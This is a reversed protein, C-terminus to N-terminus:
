RNIQVAQNNGAGPVLVKEFTGDVLSIRLDYDSWSGSRGWLVAQNGRTFVKRPSVYGPASSLKVRTPPTATPDALYMEHKGASPGAAFAVLKGDPAPSVYEITTTGGAPFTAIARATTAKNQDFGYLDHPGGTAKRAAFFVHEPADRAVTVTPSVLTLYLGSTINIVRPSKRDVARLDAYTTVPGSSTDPQQLFYLYKGNPSVWGGRPYIKGPTTFPKQTGGTKTLNVLAGTSVKYHFLDLQKETTGAWFLLDDDTAWHLASIQRMWQDFNAAGTVQVAAASQDLRRVYLEEGPTENRLYALYTKQPSFAITVDTSDEFHHRTTGPYPYSGPTQSFNKATGGTTEVLIIDRTYTAGERALIVFYSGDASAIAEPYIRDVASGSITPLTVAAASASCDDKVRFLRYAGSAVERALFFFYGGGFVFTDPAFEYTAPQTPTVDCTPGGSSAFTKGDLRILMLGAGGSTSSYGYRAALLTNDQKFAMARDFTDAAPTRGSRSALARTTGDPLLQVFTRGPGAHETLYVRGAAAPLLVERYTGHQTVLQPQGVDGPLTDRPGTMIPVLTTFSAPFAPQPAAAGGSTGTTRAAHIFGSGSTFYVLTQSPLPPAADPSLLDPARQDPLALDPVSQDLAVNLDPVAQDLAVSQDPAAQQDAAPGDLAPGDGAPGDPRPLDPAPGPLDKATGDARQGDRPAGDVPVGQDPLRVCRNSLCVLGADCSGDVRCLGGESGRAAGADAADEDGDSCGLLCVLGLLLVFARWM